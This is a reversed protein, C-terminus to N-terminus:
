GSRLLADAARRVTNSDIAFGIGPAQVGMEPDVAAVVSGRRLAPRIDVESQEPRTTVRKSEGVPM